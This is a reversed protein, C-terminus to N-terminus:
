PAPTVPSRTPRRPKAPNSRGSEIRPPLLVFRYTATSDSSCTVLMDSRHPLFSVSRIKAKSNEVTAVVDRKDLDYLVARGDNGGTLIMNGAVDLRRIGAKRQDQTPHLSVSETEHMKELEAKTEEVPKRTRRAEALADSLQVFEEALEAPLGKGPAASEHVIEKLKALQSRADDREKLLRCIVRCAAEHQYLAQSLEQRTTNLHEKLTRTELMLGDWESQLLSLM